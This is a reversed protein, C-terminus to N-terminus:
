ENRKKRWNTNSLVMNLDLNLNKADRLLQIWLDLERKCFMCM